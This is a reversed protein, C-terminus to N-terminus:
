FINHLVPATYMSWDCMYTAEFKKKSIFTTWDIMLRLGNYLVSVKSPHSIKFDALIVQM